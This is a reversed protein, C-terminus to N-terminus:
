PWCLSRPNVVARNSRKTASLRDSEAIMAEMRAVLPDRTAADRDAADPNHCVV